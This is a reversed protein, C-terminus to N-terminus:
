ERNLWQDIQPNSIGGSRHKKHEWHEHMLEGFEILNESELAELSRLCIDKVYNLNQIM